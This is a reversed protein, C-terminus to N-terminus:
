AAPAITETTELDGFEKRLAQWVWILDANEPEKFFNNYLDIREQDAHAKAFAYDHVLELQEPCVKDLCILLMEEVEELPIPEHFQIVEASSGNKVDEFPTKVM